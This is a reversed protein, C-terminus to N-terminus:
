GELEGLSERARGALLRATPPLVIEAQVGRTQKRQLAMKTVYTPLWGTNQVIARLRWTEPGTSEVRVERWQLQPTILAQWLLWRPFREVEARLRHPPPNSFALFRNWGGLEVRGLQPHQFPRWAVYGDGGLERDAWRLLKLDDEPPHDRYWDIWRGDEIGAEKRPNWIEVTWVFRGLHEYIWDFTGGIYQKPYYGFDHFVPVAPYGTLAEGKRGITRYAWLDEPPMQDDPRDGFPRLLVGSDTHFSVGGCINPHGVFFDVVARVEPASTPYPGAGAQEHEPRWGAPFNRNLDLGAANGFAGM